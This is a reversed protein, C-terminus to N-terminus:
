TGEEVSAGLSDLGRTRLEVGRSIKGVRQSGGSVGVCSLPLEEERDGREAGGRAVEEEERGGRARERVELEGHVWITPDTSESSVALDERGDDSSSLTSDIERTHQPARRDRSLTVVM